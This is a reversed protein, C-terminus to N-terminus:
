LEATASSSGTQLNSSPTSETDMHKDFPRPQGTPETIPPLLANISRAFLSRLGNPPPNLCDPINAAAPKYAKSRASLIRWSSWRFAFCKASPM